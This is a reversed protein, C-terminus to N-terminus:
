VWHRTFHSLLSNVAARTSVASGGGQQQGGTASHFMVRSSKHSIMRIGTLAVAQQEAKTLGVLLGVAQKLAAPAQDPLYAGGTYQVVVPQSPVIDGFLLSLKGSTEELQYQDPDLFYGEPSEVSELDDISVPWHTLFIRGHQIERWYERVTQRALVRNGLKAAIVASNVDIQFQLNADNATDGSAIGLMLKAEDLTLLAFSTAPELVQVTVDAM